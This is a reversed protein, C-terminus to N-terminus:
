CPGLDAFEKGLGDCPNFGVLGFSELEGDVLFLGLVASSFDSHEDGFPVSGRGLKGGGLKRRMEEGAGVYFGMDRWERVGLVRDWGLGERGSRGVLM